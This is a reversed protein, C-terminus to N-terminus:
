FMASRRLLFSTVSVAMMVAVLVAPAIRAIRSPTNSLAPPKGRFIAIIIPMPLLVQATSTLAMGTGLPSPLGYANTVSLMAVGAACVTALLLGWVRIRYLGTIALVLVSASLLLLFSQPGSESPREKWGHEQLKLAGFLVLAQADAVAMIMGLTLTTRFAVPRFASGEGEDLGLRGMTLLATGTTMALLVGMTGERSGRGAVALLTGLVLTAWWAARAILQSGVVGHHLLLASLALFAAPIWLAAPVSGDWTRMLIAAALASATAVGLRVWRVSRELTSTPAPLSSALTRPSM